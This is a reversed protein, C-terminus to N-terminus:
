DENRPQSFEANEVIQFLGPVPRRKFVGKKVLRNCVMEADERYIFPCNPDIASLRDLALIGHPSIRAQSMLWRENKGLRMGLGEAAGHAPQAM